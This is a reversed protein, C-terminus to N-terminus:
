VKRVHKKVLSELEKSQFLDICKLTNYSSPVSGGHRNIMFENVLAGGQLPLIGRMKIGVNKVLWMVAMFQAWVTAFMPRQLQDSGQNRKSPATVPSDGL